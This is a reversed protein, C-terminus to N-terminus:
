VLQVSYGGMGQRHVDLYIADSRFRVVSSIYRFLAPRVFEPGNRGVNNERGRSSSRKPPDANSPEIQSVVVAGRRNAIGHCHESPPAESADDGDGSIGERNDKQRLMLRYWEIHVQLPRSHTQELKLYKEKPPKSSVRLM